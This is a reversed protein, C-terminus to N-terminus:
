PQDGLSELHEHLKEITQRTESDIPQVDYSPIDYNNTEIAKLLKQLFFRFTRESRQAYRHLTELQHVKFLALNPHGVDISNRLLMVPIFDREIEKESFGLKSLESRVEDRSPGYLVELIKNFNLLVEALFEGPTKSERNLRCATHFYHLSGILRRRHSASIVNFRNWATVFRNEQQDQTTTEIEIQWDALEWRFPILGIKGDVRDVVPPDAFEVALLLPLGFYLSELIEMLDKLTKCHEKITVKNGELTTLRNAQEIQVSLPSLPSESEVFHQGTSANFILHAPKSRVATLGGGPAMGFSQLPLFYISVEVNSPFELKQEENIRLVRRRFQYTFM